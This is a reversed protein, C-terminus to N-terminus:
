RTRVPLTSDSWRVPHAARRSGREGNLPLSSHMDYLHPLGLRGALWVGLLGAEEHSHIADYRRARALRAATVALLADLLLKAASPGIRVGRLFPPRPCRVIELRPIRVDRGFPCTVLDVRHGLECLAKIRHYESFPDRAARLVARPRADPSPRLRDREPPGHRPGSTSAPCRLRSKAQCPPM